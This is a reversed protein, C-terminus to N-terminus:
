RVFGRPYGPKVVTAMTHPVAGALMMRTAVELPGSPDSKGKELKGIQDGSALKLARALEQKTLPRGLGWMEGLTERVKAFDLPAEQESM